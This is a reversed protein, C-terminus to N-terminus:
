IDIWLLMLLWNLSKLVATIHASWKSWNCDALLVKYAAITKFAEPPLTSHLTSCYNLKITIFTYVQKESDSPCFFFKFRKM